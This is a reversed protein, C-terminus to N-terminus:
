PELRSTIQIIENGHDWTCGQHTLNPQGIKKCQIRKWNKLSLYIQQNFINVTQQIQNAFIKKWNVIGVTANM